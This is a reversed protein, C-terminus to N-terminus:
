TAEFWEPLQPRVRDGALRVLEQAAHLGERVDAAPALGAAYSVQHRSVRVTDLRELLEADGDLLRHAETIRLQHGGDSGTVEYGEIALVSDCAAIVASQLLGQRSEDTNETRAADAAFQEARTLFAGALLPDPEIRELDAETV